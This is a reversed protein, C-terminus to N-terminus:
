IFIFEIQLDGIAMKCSWAPFSDRLYRGVEVLRERGLGAYDPLVGSMWHRRDYAWWVWTQHSNDQNYTRAGARAENEM